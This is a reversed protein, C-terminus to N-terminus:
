RKLMAVPNKGATCSVSARGSPWARGAIELTHHSGCGRTLSNKQWNRRATCNGPRRPVDIAAQYLKTRLLYHENPARSTFPREVGGRRRGTKVSIAPEASFGSMERSNTAKRWEEEGSTSVKPPKAFKGTFRRSWRIRITGALSLSRCWGMVMPGHHFLLITGEIAYSNTFTV